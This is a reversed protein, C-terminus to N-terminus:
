ITTVNIIRDTPISVNVTVEFSLPDTSFGLGTLDVELCRLDEDDDFEDGLWNSVADRAGNFSKFFYVRREAEGLKKSRPGIQPDLSSKLIKTANKSSTVHFVIM